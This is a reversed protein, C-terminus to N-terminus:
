FLGHWPDAGSVRFSRFIEPANATGDDRPGVDVTSSGTPCLKQSFTGFSFARLGVNVFLFCIGFM